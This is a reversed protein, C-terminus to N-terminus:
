KAQDKPFQSFSYTSGLNPDLNDFSTSVTQDQTNSSVAGQNANGTTLNVSPSEEESKSNDNKQVEVDQNNTYVPSVEEQQTNPITQNLSPNSDTVFPVESTKESVFDQNNIGETIDSNTDQAVQSNIVRDSPVNDMPPNGGLDINSNMSPDSGPLPSNGEMQLDSNEIKVDSQNAANGTASSTLDADVSKPAPSSAETNSPNGNVENFLDNNNLSEKGTDSPTEKEESQVPQNTKEETHLTSNKIDVTNPVIRDLSSKNERMKLIEEPNTTILTNEYESSLIQIAVHNAGVFFIGEGVDASLLLNKEGASLYFVEALHDMATPSQRLLIQISSNTVVAKGYDSTLFDDVDQSITTLGLYYKRARKAVAYVFEASDPYKMLLWAEDIIFIRRRLEKKVRTWIFDLMLYMSVPRLEDSLDRLSFVVFDNDLNVNTQQDFIGSASGKVYKELRQAMSHAEAEEMSLLIKYLDELLPPQRTQTDPDFTIGKDRYTLILAKDLIANEMSSIGGDEGLMVKFLGHLSLIKFRLEDEGEEYVGSLDFPNIKSAGDQSFTIYVGNLSKCLTEYESEPDVIIIQTGLMLSRLAELKVLYSKGAGSKAFIVSNANELEFRDFVVLSKNAKNIGYLVGRDSTLESSVFPFTTAISTTDMNHTYYLNDSAAPLTSLFGEEMQLTAPKIILSMAGMTSELNKSIDELENQSNARVTVYLAFHFYREAGKALNEQLDKADALAVKLNPDMVKGSEMLNNTSAEMEAIKNRLKSLVAAANIPYYFMSIDISHEFTILPSLWNPVVYRPYALAFYTRYFKEGIKIHSFDVEISPPAIIDKISNIGMGFSSLPDTNQYNPNGEIVPNDISGQVVNNQTPEKKNNLLNFPIKM